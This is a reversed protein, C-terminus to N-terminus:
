DAKNSCVERRRKAAPGNKHEVAQETTCVIQSISLQHEPHEKPYPTSTKPLNKAIDGTLSAPTGSNAESTTVAFHVSGPTIPNELVGKDDKGAPVAM